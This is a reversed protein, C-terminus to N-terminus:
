SRVGPVDPRTREARFDDDSFISREAAQARWERRFMVVLFTGLSLATLSGLVRMLRVISLTYKGTAADYDYCFLLLRGIRSGIQGSAARQLENELERPPYDIGYFYRAIRGDPTVVMIGAAHAYLKTAPNFSYRFGAVRCLATIANGDGVLFHWGRQAGPRGYRELYAQKKQGALEPTEEPNISVALVDFDSGASGKLAKLSRSLGNLVQNCLLPCRYYVLALILPRRGLYDGLPHESSQEDRFRIERPLKAGLNQDFGVRDTLGAVPQQAKVSKDSSLVVFSLAVFLARRTNM